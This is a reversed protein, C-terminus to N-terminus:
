ISLEKYAIYTNELMKSASFNNLRQLNRGILKLNSGESMKIMNEALSKVSKPQFLNPYDDGLVEPIAPSRSAIIPVNSSMAELLVLGFGEYLSSLV